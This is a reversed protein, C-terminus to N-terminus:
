GYLDTEGRRDRIPKVKAVGIAIDVQEEM